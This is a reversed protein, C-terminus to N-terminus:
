VLGIYSSNRLLKQVYMFSVFVTITKLAIQYFLDSNELIEPQMLFTPCLNSYFLKISKFKFIISRVTMKLVKFSM